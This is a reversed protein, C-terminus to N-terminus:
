HKRAADLKEAFDGPTEGYVARVAETDAVYGEDGRFRGKNWLRDLLKMEIPTLDAFQWCELRFCDFGTPGDSPEPPIEQTDTPRGALLEVAPADASRETPIEQTDTPRTESIVPPHAAAQAEVAAALAALRDLGAEWNAGGVLRTGHGTKHYLIRTWGREHFHPVPNGADPAHYGTPKGAM